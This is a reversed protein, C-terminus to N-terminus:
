GAPRVPASRRRSPRARWQLHLAGEEEVVRTGLTQGERSLRAALRRAAAAGARCVQLRRVTTPRMELSLLRRSARDYRALYVLGLDPHLAIRHPRKLIGEYDNILDGCGYLVLRGDHVEMGRAHHASHGHVLDVRAEDILRRAFAREAPTVGWMYNDGWHISAVVFDEPRAAAAVADRVFAFWRDELGILNIGPRGATAAWATPCGSSPVAFSFVLVRGQGPLELVAPAAAQRRERGAGAHGLGAADLADLTDVLGQPGFDLTHNNALACCDIRAARLAAVNLPHMRYHVPKNPWPAGRATIATELNVIRLDAQLSDFIALADGWVYDWGRGAPIAGNYLAALAVFLGADRGRPLSAPLAPDGPHPLVQDIGRGLMVDGCLLLRIESGAM